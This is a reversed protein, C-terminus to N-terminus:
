NLFFGMRRYTVVDFRLCNFNDVYCVLSIMGFLWHIIPLWCSPTIYTTLTSTINPLYLLCLFNFRIDWQSTSVWTTLSCLSQRSETYNKYSLLDCCLDYLSYYSTFLGIYRITITSYILIAIHCTTVSLVHSYYNFCFIIKIRLTIDFFWGYEFCFLM